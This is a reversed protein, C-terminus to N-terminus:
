MYLFLSVQGKADLSELRIIVYAKQGIIVQSVLRYFMNVNVNVM